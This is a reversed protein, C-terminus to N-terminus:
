IATRFRKTLKLVRKEFRIIPVIVLSLTFFAKASPIVAFWTRVDAMDRHLYHTLM